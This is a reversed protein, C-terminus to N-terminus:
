WDSIFFLCAWAWGLPGEYKCQLIRFVSEDVVLATASAILVLCILWFM